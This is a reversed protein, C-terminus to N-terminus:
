LFEVATVANTGSASIASVAATTAIPSEYLGNPFLTYFGSGAVATAGYSLEVNATGHNFLSVIRATASAAVVATSSTTVSVNTRQTTTSSSPAVSSGGSGGTAFANTGDAALAVVRRISGGDGLPYPYTETAM